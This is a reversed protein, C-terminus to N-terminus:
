LTSITELYQTKNMYHVFPYEQSLKKAIYPTEDTSGLDVVILENICKTCDASQAQLQWAMSRIVGEICDEGNKVSIVAYPPKIKESEPQQAASKLITNRLYICLVTLVLLLIFIIYIM